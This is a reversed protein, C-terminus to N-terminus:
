LTEQRKSSRRNCGPGAYVLMSTMEGFCTTAVRACTRGDQSPVGMRVSPTSSRSSSTRRTYLTAYRPRRSRSSGCTYASPDAGNQREFRVMQVVFNGLFNCIKSSRHIWPRFAEPSAASHERFSLRPPSLTPLVGHFPGRFRVSLNTKPGCLHHPM